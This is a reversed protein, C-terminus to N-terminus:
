KGSGCFFNLNTRFWTLLDETVGYEIKLPKSPDSQDYYKKNYTIMPVDEFGLYIKRGNFRIDTISIM